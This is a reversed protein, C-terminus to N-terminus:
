AAGPRSSVQACFNALRLSKRLGSFKNLFEGRAVDNMYHDEDAFVSCFITPEFRALTYM